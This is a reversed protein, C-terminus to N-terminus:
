RAKLRLMHGFRLRIGEDYVNLGAFADREGDASLNGPGLDLHAVHVHLEVVLPRELLPRGLCVLVQQQLGDQAVSVHENPTILGLGRPAVDFGDPGTPIPLRAATSTDPRFTPGEPPSGAERTPWRTCPVNPSRRRRDTAVGCRYTREAIPIRRLSRRMCVNGPFPEGAKTQFPLYSPPGHPFEAYPKSHLEAQSTLRGFPTRGILLRTSKPSLRAANGSSTVPQTKNSGARQRSKVPGLQSMGM